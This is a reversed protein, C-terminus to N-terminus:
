GWRSADPEVETVVSTNTNMQVMPRAGPVGRGDEMWVGARASAVGRGDELRAEAM